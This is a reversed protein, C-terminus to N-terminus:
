AACDYLRIIFQPNELCDKLIEQRYLIEEETELPVVLLKRMTEEIFLDPKGIEKVNEGEMIVERASMMYLIRLGLDQLISKEDFYPKANIWERDPYLLYTKM